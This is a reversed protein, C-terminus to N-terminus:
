RSYIHTSIITSDCSNSPIIYIYMSDSVTYQYDWSNGSYEHNSPISDYIEEWDGYSMDWGYEILIPAVFWLYM